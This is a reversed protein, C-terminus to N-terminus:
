FGSRFDNNTSNSNWNVEPLASSNGTHGGFGFNSAPAFNDSSATPTHGFVNMVEREIGIHAEGSLGYGVNFTYASGGDLSRSYDMGMGVGLKFEAGHVVSNSVGPELAKADSVTLAVGVSGGEGTTAVNGVNHYWGAMFGHEQSYSGALGITGYAGIGLGGGATLGIQVTFKGAPDM